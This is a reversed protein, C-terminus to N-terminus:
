SADLWPAEDDDSTGLLEINCDRYCQYPNSRRSRFGRASLMSDESKLIWAIRARSVVEHVSRVNPALQALLLDLMQARPLVHEWHFIRRGPDSLRRM